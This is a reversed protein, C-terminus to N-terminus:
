KNLRDYMEKFTTNVFKELEAKDPNFDKITVTNGLEAFSQMFVRQNTVDKKGEQTRIADLSVGNILKIFEQTTYTNNEIGAEMLLYQGNTHIPQELTGHVIKAETM